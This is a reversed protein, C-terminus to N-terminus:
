CFDFGSCGFTVDHTVECYGPETEYDYTSGFLVASYEISVMGSAVVGSWEEGETLTVEWLEGDADTVRVDFQEFGECGSCSDSVLLTLLCEDEELEETGDGPGFLDQCATLLLSSAVLLTLALRM